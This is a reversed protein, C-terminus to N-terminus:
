CFYLSVLWGVFVILCLWGRLHWWRCVAFLCFGGFLYVVLCRLALLLLELLDVDLFDVVWCMSNM